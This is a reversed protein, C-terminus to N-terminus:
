RLCVQTAICLTTVMLAFQRTTASRKNLITEHIRCGGLSHLELDGPCCKDRRLQDSELRLRQSYLHAQMGQCSSPQICCAPTRSRLGRVCWISGFYTRLGEVVDCPFKQSFTGDVRRPCLHISDRGYEVESFGPQSYYRTPGTIFQYPTACAKDDVIAKDMNAVISIISQGRDCGGDLLVVQGSPLDLAAITTGYSTADRVTGM